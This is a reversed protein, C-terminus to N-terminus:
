DMYMNPLQEKLLQLKESLIADAEEDFYQCYQKKSIEYQSRLNNFEDELTDMGLQYAEDVAENLEDKTMYKELINNANLITKSYQKKFKNIYAHPVYGSGSCYDKLVSTNVVEFGKVYGANKAEQFDKHSISIVYAVFVLLLLTVFGTTKWTWKDNKAPINYIRNFKNIKVQIIVIISLSVVISLICFLYVTSSNESYTSIRSLLSSIVHFIIYITAYGIAHFPKVKINDRFGNTSINDLTKNDDKSTTIYENILPFLKFNTIPCFLSRLISNINKNYKKQAQKWLNYTWVIEYVGFSMIFLIIIKWIPVTNYLPENQINDEINKEGCYQCFNSDDNIEKGCNSCYLYAGGNKM